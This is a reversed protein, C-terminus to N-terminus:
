GDKWFTESKWHWLTEERDRSNGGIFCFVREGPFVMGLREWALQRMEQADAPQELKRRLEEGEGRLQECVATLEENLAEMRKLSRYEAALNWLSYLLLALVAVRLMLNRNRM